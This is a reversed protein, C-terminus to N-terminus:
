VFAIFIVAFCNRFSDACCKVYSITQKYTGYRNNVRNRRNEALNEVSDIGYHLCIESYLDNSM